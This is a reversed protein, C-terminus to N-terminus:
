PGDPTKRRGPPSRTPTTRSRRAAGPRVPSAQRMARITASAAPRHAWDMMRALEALLDRDHPNTEAARLALAQARDPERGWILMDIRSLAARPAPNADAEQAIQVFIDRVEGDDMDFALNSPYTNSGRHFVMANRLTTVSQTMRGFIAMRENGTRHGEKEHMALALQHGLQFITNPAENGGGVEPRFSLQTDEVIYIGDATMTPYLEDFSTLIHAPMHSGDDIIVDFPGHRQAIGALTSRDAQSGQEIIVRAPMAFSKKELDLGVISAVPFYDAWMRLSSGGAQESDYGGIGIELLRIPRDRLHALIQHYHPTYLHAGFKDSGHRIALRTLPDLPRGQPPM